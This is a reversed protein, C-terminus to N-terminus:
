PEVPKGKCSFGGEKPSLVGEADGKVRSKQPKGVASGNAIGMPVANLAWPCALAKGEAQRQRAWSQPGM